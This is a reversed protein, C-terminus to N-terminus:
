RTKKDNTQFIFSIPRSPEREPRNNNEKTCSHPAHTVIGEKNLVLQTM